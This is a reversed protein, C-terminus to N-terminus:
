GLKERIHSWNPFIYRLVLYWNHHLTIIYNKYNVLSFYSIGMLINLIIGEKNDFQLHTVMWKMSLDVAIVQCISALCLGFIKEDFPELITQISALSWFIFFIIKTILLWIHFSWSKRVWPGYLILHDFNYIQGSNPRVM